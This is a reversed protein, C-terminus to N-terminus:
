PQYDAPVNGPLQFYDNDALDDEDTPTYGPATVRISHRVGAPLVVPGTVHYGNVWVDYSSLPVGQCYDFAAFNVVYWGENSQDDDDDEVEGRVRPAGDCNGFNNPMDIDRLAIRELCFLMATSAYLEEYVNEGKEMRETQEATPTRPEITLTHEYLEEQVRVELVGYVPQPATATHATVTVTPPTTFVTGDAAYVDGNWTASTIVGFDVSKETDLEFALFETRGESVYIGDSIVGRSARLVYPTTLDLLRVRLTVELDGDGRCSSKYQEYYWMLHATRYDLGQEELWDAFGAATKEPWPKQELAFSSGAGGTSSFNVVATTKM